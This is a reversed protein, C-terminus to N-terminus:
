IRLSVNQLNTTQTHFRETVDDTWAGHRHEGTQLVQAPDSVGEERLKACVFVATELARQEGRQSRPAMLSNTDNWREM